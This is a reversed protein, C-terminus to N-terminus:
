SQGLDKLEYTRVIYDITVMCNVADPNGVNSSTVFVQYYAQDTPNAGFLAITDSTNRQFIKRKSFWNKVMAMKDYNIYRTIANKAERVTEWNTEVTTDDKLGIGVIGGGLIPTTGESQFMVTIKSGIVEYHNYIGAITDYGYPQHGTGSINPDYIGNASFLHYAIAGVGANLSVTECYRLRFLNKNPFPSNARSLMIAKRRRPHWLRRRTRRRRGYQTTAKRKM